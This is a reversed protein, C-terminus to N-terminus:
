VTGRWREQVQATRVEEMVRVDGAEATDGGVGGVGDGAVAGM